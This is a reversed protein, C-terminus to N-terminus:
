EDDMKQDDSAEEIIQIDFKKCSLVGTTGRQPTYDSSFEDKKAVITYARTLKFYNKRIVCIDIKSGSGLDNHIGATVADCMLKIAAKESMDQKWYKEFMSMSASRGSGMTEFPLHSMAGHSHISVIHPGDNDVGGFILHCSIKGGYRFLYNKAFNTAASVPVFTRCTNLRIIEM